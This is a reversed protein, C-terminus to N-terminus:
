AGEHARQVDAVGPELGEGARPHLVQALRLMRIQVAVALGLAQRRQDRRQDLLHAGAVPDGALAFRHQDRRAGGPREARRTPIHEAGPSSTSTSAGNQGSIRPM